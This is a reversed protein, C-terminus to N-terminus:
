STQVHNWNYHITISVEPDNTANFRIKTRKSDINFL